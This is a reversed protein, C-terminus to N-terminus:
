ILRRAELTLHEAHGDRRIELRHPGAVRFALRADDLALAPVRRGDIAVIRDGARVGAEDGPSGPHVAMVQIAGSGSEDLALFLGSMDYEFPSSAAAVPELIMRRHAYDFTVRHRRLLEGGVIAQPDGAALVGTTDRSLIVIPEAFTVPGLTLAAFRGVDGRTLGGAGGGVVLDRLQGKAGHLGHAAAFPTFLTVIGRVGTDIIVRCPLPKGGKPTVTGTAIPWGTELDLPVVSADPPPTYGAPDRLTITRAAYDLTVVHRAMFDHGLLGDVPRGEYRTVHGLTLVRPQAVSLTEGLASLTVVGRAQSLRVDAGAGAGVETRAEDGRSLGVREASERAVISPGSLGTDLIFWQPESGDISVRVFPKNNTIEFPQPSAPAASASLQTLLAVAIAIMSFGGPVLENIRRLWLPM